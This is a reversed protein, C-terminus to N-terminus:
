PGMVVQALFGHILGSDDSYRGCILGASNIGTFSTFVTGPYDYVFSRQSGLRYIFAHGIGYQGEGRRTFRQAAREYGAIADDFRLQRRFVVGLALLVEASHPALAQARALHELATPYDLRGRLDCYVLALHAQMLNPQLALAKEAHNREEDPSVEAPGAGLWRLL